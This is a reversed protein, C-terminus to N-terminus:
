GGLIKIGSLWYGDANPVKAKWEMDRVLSYMAPIHHSATRDTHFRNVVTCVLDALQLGTSAKSYAFFPVRLLRSFSRGLKSRSLFNRYGTAVRENLTLGRDDFVLSGVADGGLEQLYVNIREMLFWYARDFQAVDECLLDVEQEAYIVSAFVKLSRFKLEELLERAFALKLSM